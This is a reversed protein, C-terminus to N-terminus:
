VLVAILVAINLELDGNRGANERFIMTSAIDRYSIGQAIITGLRM